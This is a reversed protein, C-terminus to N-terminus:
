SYTANQKSTYPYKRIGWSLIALVIDNILRGTRTSELVIKNYEDFDFVIIYKGAVKIDEFIQM